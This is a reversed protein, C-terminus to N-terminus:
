GSGRAEATGAGEAGDGDGDGQEPATGMVAFLTVVRALNLAAFAVSAWLLADDSGFRDFLRVYAVAEFVLIGGLFALVTALSMVAMLVTPWGTGAFSGMLRTEGFVSLTAPGAAHKLGEDVQAGHVHDLAAEYIERYRSNAYGATFMEYLLFAIVAPLLKLVASLDATKVPGVEIEEIRGTEMLEFGFALAGILLATRRMQAFVQRRNALIADLYHVSVDPNTTSPFGKAVREEATTM